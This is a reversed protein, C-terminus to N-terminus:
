AIFEYNFCSLVYLGATDSKLVREGLSILKCNRIERVADIEEETFDGEPGIMVAARGHRFGAIAQKIGITEGSLCAMLCIDYGDLSKVVEGYDSVPRVPPVDKRGCQKSAERAIAQWRRTRAETKEDRVAVVTRKTMVPWIESVGLETSKELIYDMKDKKPIAQILTVSPLAEPAPKKVTVVKVVLSKPKASEIFGAYERGTGDFIVVRDNVALRMVNLIHKAEPGDIFIRDGKVNEKPAFFRSM